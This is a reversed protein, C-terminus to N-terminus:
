RPDYGGDNWQDYPDYPPNKKKDSCGSLTLGIVLAGASVISTYVKM